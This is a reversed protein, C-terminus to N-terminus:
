INLMEGRYNKEDWIIKLGCSEAVIRVPSFTTGNIIFGDGVKKGNLYISPNKGKEALIEIEASAPIISNTLEVRYLASNWSVNLGCSEAVLRVPAFMTGNILIGDGVKKGNLYIEPGQKDFWKQIDEKKIGPCATNMFEYHARVSQSVPKNGYRYKNLANHLAVLSKKALDTPKDNTEFNGVLCVGISEPNGRSGAHSGIYKM